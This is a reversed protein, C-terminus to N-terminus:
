SAIANIGGATFRTETARALDWQWIDVGAPSERAYAVVKEDPSLAPNFVVGPAGVPVPPKGTRDFWVLQSVGGGANGSSYLLVGNDSATVPAFGVLSGVGSSVGEAAPFVGASATANGADFPLAMLNNDRVFLLHGSTRPLGSAPASPAFLTVSADALIRRNEKGDLSAVYIGDSKDQSLVKTYLFHRGDPLFMPYLYAGKTKFVNSSVGGSAPV